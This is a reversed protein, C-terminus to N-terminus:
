GTRRMQRRILDAMEEVLDPSWGAASRYRLPLGHTRRALFGSLAEAHFLVPRRAPKQEDGPTPHDSWPLWSPPTTWSSSPSTGPPNRLM